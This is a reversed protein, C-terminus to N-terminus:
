MNTSMAVAGAGRGMEVHVTSHQWLLVHASGDCCCLSGASDQRASYLFAATGVMNPIM